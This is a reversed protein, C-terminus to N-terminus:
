QLGFSVGCGQGRRAGNLKVCAPLGSQMGVEVFWLPGPRAISLYTGLSLSVPAHDAVLIPITVLPGLVLDFAFLPILLRVVRDRLLGGAGKRDYSAPTFHGAILFFTGMFFGQDILILLIGVLQAVHDNNPM